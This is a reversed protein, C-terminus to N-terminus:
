RTVQNFVRPGGANVRVGDLFISCEGYLVLDKVLREHVSRKMKSLKELRIKYAATPRAKHRQHANM